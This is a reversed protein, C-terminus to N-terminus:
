NKGKLKYSACLCLGELFICTLADQPKCTMDVHNLPVGVIFDVGKQYDMRGVFGLLPVDPNEPLGLERQLARKNIAKGELLNEQSYRTYGDTTLFDDLAPNWTKDDIGNVIGSLKWNQEQVSIVVRQSASSSHKPRQTRSIVSVHM